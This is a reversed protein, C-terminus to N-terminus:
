GIHRFIGGLLMMAFFCVGMGFLLGLISFGMGGSVILMNQILNESFFVFWIWCRVFMSCSLMVSGIFWHCCIHSSISEITCFMEFIISSVHIAGGM